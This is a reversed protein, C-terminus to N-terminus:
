KEKIHKNEIQIMNKNEEIKRTLFNTLLIVLAM